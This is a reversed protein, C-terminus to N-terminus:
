IIFDGFTLVLPYDKVPINKFHYVGDALELKDEDFSYIGGDYPDILRPEGTVGSIRFSVTSEYSTTMVQTPKYYAFASAGNNRVFGQTIFDKGDEDERYYKLSWAPVYDVNLACLKFEGDFLSIFNCFAYYSPKEEYEGTVKGDADFKNRLIGFYAQGVVNVLAERVDVSTFYSSFRVQTMLDILERRLLIKTQKVEDWAGEWVAGAGFPQSQCGSEGQILDRVGYKKLVEQVPVIDQLIKEVYASYRHYTVGDTYQALGTSFMDEVWQADLHTLSGAILYTDPYAEKIAKATMLAFDGYEVGNGGPYWLWDPENWIEYKNVKERYREVVKLCYRVWADKEAKTKVPPHNVAGFADKAGDTYVPNGYCLCIWPEMGRTVLNDVIDDLWSFDYVGANSETKAWGSQIRVLKVGICQLKDYVKDPRYLDRDLKELGIGFYDKEVENSQKPVIHGLRTVGFM